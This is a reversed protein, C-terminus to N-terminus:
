IIRRQETEKAFLVTAKKFTDREITLQQVQAKLAKIEDQETAGKKTTVQETVVRGSGVFAQNGRKKSENIWRSLMPTPIDLKKAAEGRTCGQELVLNVADVKFEKSYAKRKNM